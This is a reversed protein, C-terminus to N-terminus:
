SDRPSPSTYLLCVGIRYTEEDKLALSIDGGNNIALRTLQTGQKVYQLVHDAVAGAVAVMPTILVGRYPEIAAMMRQAVPGYFCVDGSDAALPTRLWELEDTLTELVPSFVDVARAYAQQVERADGKADILLDIPGHQLHLRGDALM